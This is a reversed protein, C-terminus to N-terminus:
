RSRIIAFFEKPEQGCCGIPLGHPPLERRRLDCFRKTLGVAAKKRRKGVLQVFPWRHGMLGILTSPFFSSSWNCACRGLLSALAWGRVVLLHYAINNSRAAIFQEITRGLGDLVPEFAISATMLASGGDNAPM